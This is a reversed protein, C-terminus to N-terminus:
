TPTSYAGAAVVQVSGRSVPARAPASFSAKASSAAKPAVLGARMISAMTEAQRTQLATGRHLIPHTSPTIDPPSPTETKERSM